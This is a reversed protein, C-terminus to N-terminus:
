GTGCNDGTFCNLDQQLASLTLCIYDINHQTIQICVLCTIKKHLGSIQSEYTERTEKLDQERLTEEQQVKENLHMVKEKDQALHGQLEELRRLSSSFM